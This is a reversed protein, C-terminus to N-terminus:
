DGEEDIEEAADDSNLATWMSLPTEFLNQGPYWDLVVPELDQATPPMLLSFRESVNVAGSAQWHAILTGTSEDFLRTIGFDSLAAVVSQLAAVPLGGNLCSTAADVFQELLEYSAQGKVDDFLLQGENRLEGNLRLSLQM